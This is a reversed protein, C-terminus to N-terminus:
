QITFTKWSFGSFIKASKKAVFTKELEVNSTFISLFSFWIQIKPLSFHHIDSSFFVKSKECTFTLMKNIESCLISSRTSWIVRRYKLLWKLCVSYSNKSTPEDKTRSKNSIPDGLAWVVQYVTFVLKKLPKFYKNRLFARHTTALTFHNTLCNDTLQDKSLSWYWRHAILITIAHIKWRPVM